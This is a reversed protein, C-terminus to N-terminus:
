LGFYFAGHTEVYWLLGRDRHTRIAVHHTCGTDPLQAGRAPVAHPIALGGDGDGDYFIDGVGALVLQVATGHGRREAVERGVLDDARRATDPAGVEAAGLSHGQSLQRLVREPSANM